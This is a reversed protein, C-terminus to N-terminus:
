SMLWSVQLELAVALEKHKVDHGIWENKCEDNNTTPCRGETGGRGLSTM